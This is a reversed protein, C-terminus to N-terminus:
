QCGMSAVGELFPTGSVSVCITFYRRRQFPHAPTLVRQAAVVAAEATYRQKGSTGASVVSGGSRRVSMPKVDNPTVYGNKTPHWEASVDPNVAALCNESTIIKGACVPCGRGKNRNCVMAEWEHGCTHCQWWFKKNSMPRVDSPTLEGNKTPHWESALRPNAAALCGEPHM